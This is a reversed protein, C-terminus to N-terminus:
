SRRRLSSGARRTTRKCSRLPGVVEEVEEEVLPVVAVVVVLLLLVLVLVKEAEKDEKSDRVEGGPCSAM